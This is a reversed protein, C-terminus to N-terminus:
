VMRLFNQEVIRLLTTTLVEFKYDPSGLENGTPFILKKRVHFVSIKVPEQLFTKKIKLFDISGDHKALFISRQMGGDAMNIKLTGGFISSARLICVSSELLYL